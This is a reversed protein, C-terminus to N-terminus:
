KVVTAGKSEYFKVQDLPVEKEQGNPARMRVLIHQARPQGPVNRGAAEQAQIYAEMDRSIDRILGDVKFIATEPTDYLTALIRKYKEEDEKRLVGGELARGVRQKVADIRAQAQRAPSWPNLVSLGSLPGIYKENDVLTQRLDQLSKIATNSQVIEKVATDSLAKGFDKFGRSRLEPIISTKVSPTLQQFLAPNEIVADVIGASGGAGIVTRKPAPQKRLLELAVAAEKDGKAAKLALEEESLSTDPRGMAALEEPTHTAKAEAMKAEAELKRKEVAAKEEEMKFKKRKEVEGLVASSQNIISDIMSLTRPDTPMEPPLMSVDVGAKELFTRKQRWTEPQAEPPTDKWAQWAQAALENRERVVKIQREDAGVLRDVSLAYDARVKAAYTPSLKRELALRLGEDFDGKAEIMADSLIQQDEREKKAEELRMKNLEGQQSMSRAQMLRAYTDLLSRQEPPNVNLAALPVGM